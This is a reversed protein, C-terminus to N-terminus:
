TRWQLFFTNSWNVQVMFPFMINSFFPHTYLTVWHYCVLSRSSCWPNSEWCWSLRIKLNKIRRDPNKVFNYFTMLMNVQWPRFHKYMYEYVAYYTSYSNNLLVLCYLFGLTNSFDVPLYFFTLPKGGLAINQVFFANYHSLLSDYFIKPLFICFECTLFTRIM